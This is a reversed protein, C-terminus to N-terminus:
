NGGGNDDLEEGSRVQYRFSTSLEHSRIGTHAECDLFSKHNNGELFNNFLVLVSRHGAHHFPSLFYKVIVIMRSNFISLIKTSETGELQAENAEVEAAEIAEVQRVLAAVRGRRETGRTGESASRFYVPFTVCFDIVNIICYRVLKSPTKLSKQSPSSEAPSSKGSNM